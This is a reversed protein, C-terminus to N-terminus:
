VWVQTPTIHALGLSLSSENLDSLWKNVKERQPNQYKTVLADGKGFPIYENHAKYIARFSSGLCNKMFFFDEKNVKLWEEICPCTPDWTPHLSKSQSQPTITSGPSVGRAAAHAYSGPKSKNVVKLPQVTTTFVPKSNKTEKKPDFALANSTSQAPAHPSKPRVLAHAPPALAAHTLLPDSNQHERNFQKVLVAFKNNSTSASSLNKNFSMNLRSPKFLSNPNQSPFPTLRQM